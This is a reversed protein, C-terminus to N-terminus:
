LKFDDASLSDLKEELKKLTDLRIQDRSELKKEPSADRKEELAKIEKETQAKAEEAIDQAQQSGFEILVYALNVRRKVIDQVLMGATYYQDRVYLGSVTNKAVTTSFIHDAAAEYGRGRTDSVATGTRETKVGVTTGMYRVIQRQADEVASDRAEPITTRPLGIGVFYICGPRKDAYSDPKYLWGPAEAYPKRASVDEDFTNEPQPLILIPRDSLFKPEGACGICATVAALVLLSVVHKM